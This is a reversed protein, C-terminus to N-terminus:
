LLRGRRLYQAASTKQWQDTLIGGHRGIRIGAQQALATNPVVGAAVVIVDAPYTAHPTLVHTAARGDQSALSVPTEGGKFVVGNQQLVDRMAARAPDAMGALPLEERDLLTVEIGRMRFAEAM